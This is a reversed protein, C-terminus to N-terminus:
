NAALATVDCQRFIPIIELLSNTYASLRFSKRTHTSSATVYRLRSAFDITNAFRHRLNTKTQKEKLGTRARVTVNEECGCGRPASM